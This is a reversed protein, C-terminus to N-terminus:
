SPPLTQLGKYTLLHSLNHHSFVTTPSGFTLKKSEHILFAPDALARICPAWGQTTLDLKKSLYAAPAFSPGLQHGLIGLAYGEKETVYLSFPCTLDSFHSTEPPVTSLLEVVPM